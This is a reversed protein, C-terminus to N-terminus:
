SRGITPQRWLPSIVLLRAMQRRPFTSSLPASALAEYGDSAEAVVEFEKERELLARLGGRILPHDDAILVRTAAM